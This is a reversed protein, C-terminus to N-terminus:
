SRPSAGMGRETNASGHRLRVHLVEGTDARSAVIPQYGLQKTYGADCDDISDAGLAMAYILAM